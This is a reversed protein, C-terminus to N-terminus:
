ESQIICTGDNPNIKCIYIKKIKLLLFASYLYKVEVDVQRYLWFPVYASLLLLTNIIQTVNTETRSQVYCFSENRYFLISDVIKETHADKQIESIM